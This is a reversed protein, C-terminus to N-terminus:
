HTLESCNFLLPNAFVFIIGQHFINFCIYLLKNHVFLYNINNKAAAASRVAAGRMAISVVAM